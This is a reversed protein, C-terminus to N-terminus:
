PGVNEARDLVRFTPLLYHIKQFNLFVFYVIKPDFKAEGLRDNRSALPSCYTRNFIKDSKTNPCIRVVARMVRRKGPGAGNAEWILTSSSIRLSTRVSQKLKGSFM